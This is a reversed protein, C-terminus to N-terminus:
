GQSRQKSKKPDVDKLKEKPFISRFLRRFEQKAKAVGIRNSSDRFELIGLGVSAADAFAKRSILVQPLVELGEIEALLQLAEVNGPGRSDGCNLVALARLRRNVKRAELVLGATEEAGWLAFSRPAAPVLVLDSCTLAARFSGTDRGGVDIVTHDYPAGKLVQTRISSGFLALVTYDAAGLREARMETFALATGQEDGDILLVRRGLEALTSAFNIALTTKGVGGKVNGVCVIM